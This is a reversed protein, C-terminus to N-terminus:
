ETMMHVTTYIGDLLTTLNRMTVREQLMIWDKAYLEPHSGLACNFTLNRIEWAFM